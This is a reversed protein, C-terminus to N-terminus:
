SALSERKYPFDAGRSKFGAYVGTHLGKGSCTMHVPRASPINVTLENRPASYPACAQNTM